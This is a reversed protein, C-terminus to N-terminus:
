SRKRAVALAARGLQKPSANFAAKMGARAKATQMRDLLADFEESLTNLRTEGSRSLANFEDISILVAKPTDHKTIVVSGGRMATELIRGFGKKADTATVSSTKMM